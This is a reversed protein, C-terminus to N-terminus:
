LVKKLNQEPAGSEKEKDYQGTIHASKPRAKPIIQTRAYRGPLLEPRIGLSGPKLTHTAHGAKPQNPSSGAPPTRYNRFLTMMVM